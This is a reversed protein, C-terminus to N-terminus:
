FHKWNIEEILPSFSFLKNHKLTHLVVEEKGKMDQAIKRGGM